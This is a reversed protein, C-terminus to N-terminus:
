PSKEIQLSSKWRIPPIFVFSNLVFHPPSSQSSSSLYTPIRVISNIMKINNNKEVMTLLKWIHLTGVDLTRILHQLENMHVATVHLM